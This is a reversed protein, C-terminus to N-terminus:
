DIYREEDRVQVLFITLVLYVTLHIVCLNEIDLTM